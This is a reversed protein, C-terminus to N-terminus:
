IILYKLSIDVNINIDTQFTKVVEFIFCSNLDLFIQINKGSFFIFLRCIYTYLKINEKHMSDVRQSATNKYMTDNRAEKRKM